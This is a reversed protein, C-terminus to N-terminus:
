FVFKMAFQIVRYDGLQQGNNGSIDSTIKDYNSSSVNVQGGFLQTNIPAIGPTFPNLHNPLNFAEARLQLSKREAIAFNRSLAMNLQFVGPGKMNNIGLNGYTGLAPLAFASTDLWHDVSQNAPYPNSKLLQAPQGPVTSLARDPGALVSFFQASKVQLIPAVQWDSALIRAVRNSFKPTTAVMNLSFLQRLDTGVCNSRWQRRAGPIEVGAGTPNQNWPDSICHSWTYNALVTVGKSLRKQASFYVGEYSATGGDDLLGIGAYYKGQDPNQLYFVRRQNQNSTANCGVTVGTPCTGLLTGATNPVLQASNINQGSPLHVTTSGLYNATLLWNQGIQKQISLNWQNVYMPHFDSLPSTVYTGFTPFPINAAAHGLGQLVALAALPNQGAQTVGPLGGYNSWPNALSGGAASVLNGYPSGFQEQSLSLMSMRDGFMGFAARIVMRGDGKPDWALGVRPFFKDWKNCNFSNGCTYQKDGSFVLGAPANQYVTSHVGQAFLGADFHADQGDFKQFVATYPEWRLGFNATLRRSIKWSDQIYLSGYYQRSYFGYITGQAFNSPRGLMFDGLVSGTISGDFNATGVANVGSWYNLQQHYISGGFGITHSGKVWSMDEYVSWLPGNHSQGPSAAGGGIAFEGPAAVAIINGALPSVNAGFSSWSQYNDPIKVINTRSAGVRFSSVLNPNIVFTDGVVIGYDLDNFGYNSISLPNKGDYTSSQNLKAAYIRGFISNKTSAQWDIKGAFLDEDQNAVLNYGVKGCPDNTTPLTKVINVAVSSLSAPAIQNNVFGLSPALTLQRGGNCAASAVSSFDGSLTAATPIYATSSVGDSRLSTRQYGGFFFLKDKRIPGGITGGFQNRKLTDRPKGSANNFFDNANLDGNRLFEFLDGHFENTGSKTVANVTATSHYGYQAPIASTEVKFEQLADPFPLPLSLNNYPDQHIVGDLSYSVSDPTGGAVSVVVTPYNRVTNLSAAGPYNAMGALFILEHVERGNLPMELVRQSDVVQGISTTRTEVQAAGAEVTVQESVAGVRMTVDVTPNAAVQLVIGTQAYKTFGEKSVELVYPGIPLNPLVYTGDAGSATTRVVGTATQTAKIAAGPIALGSADTITGNIQATQALAVACSLWACAVLTFVRMIGTVEQNRFPIDIGTATTLPYTM